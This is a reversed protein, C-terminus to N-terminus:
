FSVGIQLKLAALSPLKKFINVVDEVDDKKSASNSKSLFGLDSQTTFIPLNFTLWDISINYDKWVSWRNGFGYTIGLTQIKVLDFDSPNSSVTSLFAPGLKVTLTSLNIGYFHNFSSDTGFKRLMLTLRSDTISGLDDFLVPSSLSRTLYEIEFTKTSSHNYAYSAGYKYPIWLDFPSFNLLLSHQFLDRKPDQLFDKKKKDFSGRAGDELSEKKMKEWRIEQQYRIQQPNLEEEKIPKETPEGTTDQAWSISLQSFFM